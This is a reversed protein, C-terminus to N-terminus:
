AMEVRNRGNHKAQYLADDAEKIVDNLTTMQEGTRSCVGISITAPIILDQVTFNIKEVKERVREAWRSASNAATDRLLMPNTATNRVPGGPTGNIFLAQSIVHPMDWDDFRGPLEMENIPMGPKTVIRVFLGNTSNIHTEM